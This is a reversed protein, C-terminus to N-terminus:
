TGHDTKTQNMAKRVQYLLAPASFPKLLYGTARWHQLLHRSPPESAIVIVPVDKDKLKEHIEDLQRLCRADPIELDLLIAQPSQQGLLDLVHGSDVAEVVTLGIAELNARILKRIQWSAAIALIHGEEAMSGHYRM